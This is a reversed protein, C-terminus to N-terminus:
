ESVENIQDRSCKKNNVKILNKSKLKLLKQHSVNDRV